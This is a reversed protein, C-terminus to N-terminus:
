AGKEKAILYIIGTKVDNVKLSYREKWRNLESVFDAPTMNFRVYPNSGDEFKIHLSATQDKIQANDM